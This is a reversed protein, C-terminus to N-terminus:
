WYLDFYISGKLFQNPFWLFLFCDIIKFNKNICKYEFIKHHNKPDLFFCVFSPTFSFQLIFAFSLSYNELRSSHFLIFSFYIILYASFNQVFLLHFFFFFALIFSFVISISALRFLPFPSFIFLLRYPFFSLFFSLFFFVPYLIYFSILFIFFIRLGFFM